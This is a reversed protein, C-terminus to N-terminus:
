GSEHPCGEGLPRLERFPGYGKKRCVGLLPARVSPRRKLGERSDLAGSSPSAGRECGGVRQEGCCRVLCGDGLGM